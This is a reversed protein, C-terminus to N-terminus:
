AFYFVALVSAAWLIMTIQFPIILTALILAFLIRKGRFEFVAFAYAAMACTVVQGITALSAIVISNEFFTGFTVGPLAFWMTTYNEWHLGTPFSFPATVFVEARTKLSTSLMWLFPIAMAVGGAVLALYVGARRAAKGRRVPLAGM